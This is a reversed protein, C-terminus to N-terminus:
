GQAPARAGDTQGAVGGRSSGHSINELFHKKFTIM